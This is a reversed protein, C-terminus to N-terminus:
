KSSRGDQSITRNPKSVELKRFGYASLTSLVRGAEILFQADKIWAAAAKPDPLAALEALAVELNRRALARETRAVIAEISSGELQDVRRWKISQTLRNLTHQMWGDGQPLQETRVLESALDSFRISLSSITGLGADAYPGLFAVADPVPAMDSFLTKLTDLEDTFPKASGVAERLQGVVFVYRTLRRHEAAAAPDARNLAAFREQLKEIHAQTDAEMESKSRELADLRQALASVEETKPGGAGTLDLEAVARRVAEISTELQEIRILSNELQAKLRGREAQLDELGPIPDNAEQELKVLRHTLEAIRSKNTENTVLWPAFDTAYPAWLPLFATAIGAVVIVALVSLFVTRMTWGRRPRETTQTKPKATAAIYPEPRPTPIDTKAAPTGTADELDAAPEDLNTLEMLKQILAHQNPTAATAVAAWKVGSIADAVATSLAVVTVRRCARLLRAKRVLDCFIAASRPSYLLVTDIEGGKLKAIAAASLARSPVTEYIVERRCQYGAETLSGSLEGAVESGAVHVLPGRGPELLEIALDALTGVNGSASHVQKFSHIRATKATADGVAFVPIDRRPSREALARVGNSSTLLLAQVGDLELNDGQLINVAMVPERAVEIGIEELANALAEGDEGPRTVLARM